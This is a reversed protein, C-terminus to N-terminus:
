QSQNAVYSEVSATRTAGDQTWTATVTCDYSASGLDTCVGALAYNGTGTIARSAQYKSGADIAPTPAAPLTAKNGGSSLYNRVIDLYLQAQATAETRELNRQVGNMSQPIVNVMALVVILLIVMAILAEILTFGRAQGVAFTM